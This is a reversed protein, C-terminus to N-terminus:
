LVPPVPHAAIFGSIIRDIRKAKDHRGAAAAKELEELMCNRLRWTGKATRLLDAALEAAVILPLHEHDALVQLEEETLGCLGQCDAITLM